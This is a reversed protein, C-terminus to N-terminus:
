SRSSISSRVTAKTVATVESAAHARAPPRIAVAVTRRDPPVVHGMDGAQGAEVQGVVLEVPEGALQWTSAWAASTAARSSSPTAGVLWGSGTLLTSRGSSGRGLRSRSSTSAAAGATSSSRKRTGRMTPSAGHARGRPRLRRGRSRRATRLPSRLARATTSSARSAMAAPSSTTPAKTVTSPSSARAAASATSALDGGATVGPRQGAHRDGQLVVQAGPADRRGARRPDELAPAGGVVGGHDLAQPRGPRDHDALGVEVLEGHAGRGLVRAKPGVRLGQSGLRTGPPEEPPDAAATAAPNTGSASPESVPPEIRWGAASHPTTPM